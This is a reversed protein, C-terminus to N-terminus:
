ASAGGWPRGRPWLTRKTARALKESLPAFPDTGEFVDGEAVLSRLQQASGLHAKLLDGIREATRQSEAELDFEFGAIESKLARLNEGLPAIADASEPRDAATTAEARLAQLGATRRGLLIGIREATRNAEEVLTAELEATEARFSSLPGALSAFQSEVEAPAPADQAQKLQQLSETQTQVLARIAEASQRAEGQLM